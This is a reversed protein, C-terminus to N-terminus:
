KVVEIQAKYQSEVQCNKAGIVVQKWDGGQLKDNGLEVLGLRRYITTEKKDSKKVLWREGTDELLLAFQKRSIWIYRSPVVLYNNEKVLELTKRIGLLSIEIPENKQEWEERRKEWSEESEYDGKVIETKVEVDRKYLGAETEFGGELKQISSGVKCIAYSQSSLLVLGKGEEFYDSVDNLSIDIGGEVSTSGNEDIQPMWCFSPNKNSEGHWAVPEGYSNQEKYEIVLRGDPLTEKINECVFTEGNWCGVGEKPYEALTYNAVEIKSRYGFAVKMVNYLAQEPTLNYDVKVHEGYPLLGLISYIGDIPVSRGRKKVEKLAQSLTMKVKDNENYGDRYYVWGVPTAIKKTGKNFEARSNYRGESAYGLQNLAWTGAMARGDILKDDFMFITQKSLWGEQFTWSRTFWESNVIKNLTDMLNIDSIDGMEDNMAMLTADANNYYQRMKPIEQEKDKKAEEGKQIICLQDIWIHNIDLLKCTQIAKRLSKNGSVTLEKKWWSYSEMEETAKINPNGWVYSLIAYNKINHNNETEEVKTEKINYLRTPLEKSLSLENENNRPWINFNIEQYTLKSINALLKNERNQRQVQAVLKAFKSEQDTEGIIQPPLFPSTLLPLKKDMKVERWKNIDNDFAQLEEWIDGVRFKESFFCRVKMVSRPLYELGHSIDTDSIRIEELKNLNRLSELSGFFLNGELNLEKLNVLHSLFTLDQSFNNSHIILSELQQSNSLDLSMLQNRSAFIERVNPCNIITLENLQNEYCILETLKPCNSVQLKTLKNGSVNIKKLNPFNAIVLEGAMEEETRAGGRWEDIERIKKKKSFNKDLWQQANVM